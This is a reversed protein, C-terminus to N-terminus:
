SVDIDAPGGVLPVMGCVKQTLTTVIAVSSLPVIRLDYKLGEVPYTGLRPPWHPPESRLGPQASQLAREPVYLLMWFAREQEITGDEATLSPANRLIM